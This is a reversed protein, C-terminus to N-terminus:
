FNLIIVEKNFNLSITKDNNITFLPYAIKEQIQIPVDRKWEDFLPRLYNKFKNTLENIMLEIEVGRTTRM